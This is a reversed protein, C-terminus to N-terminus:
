YTQHQEMKLPHMEWPSLALVGLIIKSTAMAAPVLSIFPDWNTHYNSAWLARVGMREAEVAFEAVQAPTMDPEIIVDIDMAQLIASDYRM